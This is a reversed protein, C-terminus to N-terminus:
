WPERPPYPIYKHVFLGHKAVRLLLANMTLTPRGSGHGVHKFMSNVNHVLGEQFVKLISGLGEQSVEFISGWVKWFPAWVRKPFRVFRAGLLPHHSIAEGWKSRFHPWCPGLNPGLNSSFHVFFGDLFRDFLQHEQSRHKSLYQHIQPPFISGLQCWFGNYIPILQSFAKKSFVLNKM